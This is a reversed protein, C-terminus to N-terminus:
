LYSHCNQIKWVKYLFFLIMILILLFRLFSQLLNLGFLGNTITIIDETEYTIEDFYKTKAIM